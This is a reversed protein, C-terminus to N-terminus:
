TIIRFDTKNNIYGDSGQNSIVKAPIGVMVAGNPCDKTVVANAGIAVNDGIKIGGVIKAGPGIYVNDGFVPVGKNPGRNVIGVTVGQSINCNHGFKAQGNVVITGFHGIYFGPAIQTGPPIDFGFKFRFRDFFIFKYPIYLKRSFGSKNLLYTSLRFHFCFKFGPCLFYARLLTKFDKKGYYRYLDSYILRLCNRINM